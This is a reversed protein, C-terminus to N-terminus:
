TFIFNKVYLRKDDVLATIRPLRISHVSLHGQNKMGGTVIGEAMYSQPAERGQSQVQGHSKALPINAFIFCVWAKFTQNAVTADETDM